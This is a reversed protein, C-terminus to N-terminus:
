GSLGVAELARAQDGYYGLKVAKGRRFSAVVADLRTLEVGSGKGRVVMKFLAIVQENGVPRVEVDEIRWSEWAQDWRAIWELYSDTGTSEPIDTDDIEIEPDLDALVAQYDRRGTAEVMRLMVDVIDESKAGEPMGVAELADAKSAYGLTSRVVKGGELQHLDVGHYHVRLGSGRGVGQYHTVCIVADGADIFESVEGSFAAFADVWATVVDRIAAAGQATQPVDPANVLDILQADPHFFQIFLDWDGDNFARNLRRVVEVNERSM